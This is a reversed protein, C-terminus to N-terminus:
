VARNDADVRPVRVQASERGVADIEGNPQRLVLRAQSRQGSVQGGAVERVELSGAKDATCGGSQSSRGVATNGPRPPTCLGRHVPSRISPTCTVGGTVDSM